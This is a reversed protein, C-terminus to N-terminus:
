RIWGPPVNAKRADEEIDAIQKKAKEIDLNVQTMEALAKQREDAIQARQYPDDRATFDTTLGNIRSQLADRFMEGRRVDERAQTMRARWANEDMVPVAPDKADKPDKASKPDKADKADKADPDKGDKTDKGAAAAEGAPMYIKKLDDNTYVKAPPPSAKRREQEKKALEGLSQAYVPVALTLIAGALLGCCVKM